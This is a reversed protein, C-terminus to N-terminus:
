EEPLGGLENIEEASLGTLMAIVNATTGDLKELEARVEEPTPNAM